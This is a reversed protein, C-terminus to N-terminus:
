GTSLENNNHDMIKVVFGPSPKTASGPKSPFTHLNM